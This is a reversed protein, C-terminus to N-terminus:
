AAGPATRRAQERKTLALVAEVLEEVGDRSLPGPNTEALAEVIQREREPDVAAVGLEGKLRWLEDVIRLRENVADLLARDVEDIRSRLASLENM